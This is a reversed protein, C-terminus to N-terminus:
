HILAPLHLLCPYSDQCSASKQFHEIIFGNRHRFPQLCSSNKLSSMFLCRNYHWTLEDAKYIFACWSFHCYWDILNNVDHVQKMDCLRKFFYFIFICLICYLVKCFTQSLSIRIHKENIRLYQNKGSPPIAIKGTPTHVTTIAVM